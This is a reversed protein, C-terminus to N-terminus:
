RVLLGLLSPLFILFRFCSMEENFDDNDVDYM